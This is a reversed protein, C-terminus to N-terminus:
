HQKQIKGYKLSLNIIDVHLNDKVKRYEYQLLVIKYTGKSNNRLVFFQNKCNPRKNDRKEFLIEDINYKSFIQFVNRFHILLM